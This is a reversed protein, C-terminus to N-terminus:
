SRDNTTVGRVTIPMAMTRARGEHQHEVRMPMTSARYMRANQGTGNISIPPRITAAPALIPALPV